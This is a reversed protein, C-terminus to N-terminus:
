AAKWGANCVLPQVSVRLGQEPRLRESVRFSRFESVGFSQVESGGFSQDELVLHKFEGKLHYCGGSNGPNVADDGAVQFIELVAFHLDHTRIFEYFLKLLRIGNARSRRIFDSIAADKRPIIQRIAADKRPIAGSVTLHGKKHLTIEGVWNVVRSEPNWSCLM